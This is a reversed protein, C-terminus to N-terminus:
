HGSRRLASGEARYTPFTKEMSHDEDSDSGTLLLEIPKEAGNLRKRSVLAQHDVM